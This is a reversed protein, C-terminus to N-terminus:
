ACDLWDLPRSRYFARAEGPIRQYREHASQRTIGLIGGIVRFSVQRARLKVIMVDRALEITKADSDLGREVAVGIGQRNVFM